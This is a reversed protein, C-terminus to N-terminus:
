PRPSRFNLPASPLRNNINISSQTPKKFARLVNSASDIASSGGGLARLFSLAYRKIGPKSFHDSVSRDIVAQSASSSALAEYMNGRMTAERAEMQKKATDTRVNLVQNKLVREQERAVGSQNGKLGAASVADISRAIDAANGSAASASFGTGASPVALVPNLGAKRLGTVDWGPGKIRAKKNLAYQDRRAFYGGAYGLASSAGSGAIGGAISGFSM